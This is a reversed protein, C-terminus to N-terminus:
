RGDGACVAFWIREGAPSRATTCWGSLSPLCHVPVNLLSIVAKCISESRHSVLYRVHMVLIPCDIQPVLKSNVFVDMCAPWLKWGPNLVRMGTEDHRWCASLVSRGLWWASRGHVLRAGRLSQRGGRAFRRCWAVLPRYCSQWNCPTPLLTICAHARLVPRHKMAAAMTHAGDIKLDDSKPYRVHSPQAARPGRPRADAGGPGRQPRQGCEARVASYRRAVTRVQVAADMATFVHCFSSARM